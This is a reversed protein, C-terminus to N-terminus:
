KLATDKSSNSGLPAIAPIATIAKLETSTCIKPPVPPPACVEMSEEGRLHPNTILLINKYYQPFYFAFIHLRNIPVWELMKYDNDPFAQQLSMKEFLTVSLIKLLTYLSAELNLCKKVIAVCTYGLM